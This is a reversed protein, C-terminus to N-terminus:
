SGASCLGEVAAGAERALTEFDAGYARGRARILVDLRKGDAALGPLLQTRGIERLRRKLLNRDVIRRGLKPVILGLRSHPAPSDAVFVELCPTTRRKGHALLRRLDAGSHIRAGRPM